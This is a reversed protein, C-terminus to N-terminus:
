GASPGFHIKTPEQTTENYARETAERLNAKNVKIEKMTVKLTCSYDEGMSEDDYKNLGTVEFEFEVEGSDGLRMDPLPGDKSATLTITTPYESLPM